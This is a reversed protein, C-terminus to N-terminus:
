QCKVDGNTERHCRRIITRLGMAAMPDYCFGMCVDKLYWTSDPNAAVKEARAFVQVLEEPPMRGNETTYAWLNNMDALYWGEANWARLAKPPVTESKGLAVSHPLSLIQPQLSSALVSTATTEAFKYQLLRRNNRSLKFQMNRYIALQTEQFQMGEKKVHLIIIRPWGGRDFEPTRYPVVSRFFWVAVVLLSTLCAPWIRRAFPKARLTWRVPFLRLTSIAAIFTLLAVAVIRIKALVVERGTVYLIPEPLNLFIWSNMGPSIRGETQLFCGLALLAACVALLNAYRFWVVTLLCAFVFLFFAVFYGVETPTSVNFYSPYDPAWLVLWYLYYGLVLVASLFLGSILFREARGSSEGRFEKM